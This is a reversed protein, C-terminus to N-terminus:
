RRRTRERRAWELIRDLQRPSDRLYAQLVIGASPGARFEEEALLEFVLEMTAELTDVSEIDVHLHAGLERARRLLPRLRRAADDRGLEPAEPRM